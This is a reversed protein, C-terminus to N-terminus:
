GEDGWWDGEGGARVGDEGSFEAVDVGVGFGEAYRGVQGRGVGGDIEDGFYVVVLAVAFLRM